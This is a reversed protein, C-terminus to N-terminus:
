MLTLHFPAPSMGILNKAEAKDKIKVIDELQVFSYSYLPLPDDVEQIKTHTSLGIKYDHTTAKFDGDNELVAFDKLLYVKTETLTTSVKQLAKM